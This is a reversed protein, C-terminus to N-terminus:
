ILATPTNPCQLGDIEPTDVCSDAAFNSAAANSSLVQAQNLVWHLICDNIRNRGYEFGMSFYLDRFTIFAKSQSGLGEFFESASVVGNSKDYKGDLVLVPVRIQKKVENLDHAAQITLSIITQAKTSEDEESPM